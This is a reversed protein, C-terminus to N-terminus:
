CYEEEPKPLRDRSFEVVDFYETHAPAFHQVIRRISNKIDNKICERYDANYKDEPLLSDLGFVRTSYLNAKHATTSIFRNIADVCEVKMYDRLEPESKPTEKELVDKIDGAVTSYNETARFGKESNEPDDPDNVAPVYARDDFYTLFM